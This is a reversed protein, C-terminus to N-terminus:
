WPYEEKEGSIKNKKVVSRKNKEVRIKKKIVVSRRRRWPDEEGRINKKKVM